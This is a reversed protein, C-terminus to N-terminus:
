EPSRDPQSKLRKNVAEIRELKGEGMYMFKQLKDTYEGSKTDPKFMGGITVIDGIEGGFEELKVVRPKEEENM